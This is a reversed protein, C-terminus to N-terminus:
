RAALTLKVGGGGFGLGGWVGGRVCLFVRGCNLEDKTLLPSDVKRWLGMKNIFLSLITFKNKDLNKYIAAASALSIEHEASRGGFLLAVSLKNKM